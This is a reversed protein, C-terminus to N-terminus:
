GNHLPKDVNNGIMLSLLRTVVAMCQYYAIFPVFDMDIDEIALAGCNLIKVGCESSLYGFVWRAMINASESRHFSTPALLM